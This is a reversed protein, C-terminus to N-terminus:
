ALKVRMLDDAAAAATLAYGNVADNTSSAPVARGSADGTVKEGLAVASGARVIAIGEVMVARSEGIAAEVNEVGLAKAGAAPVGGDFGVFLFRSKATAAGPLTEILLPKETLKNKPENHAM